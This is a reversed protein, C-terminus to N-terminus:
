CMTGAPQKRRRAFEAGLNLDTDSFRREVLDHQLLATTVAQGGFAQAGLVLFALAIMPLAPREM